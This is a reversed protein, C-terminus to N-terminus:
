ADPNQWVVPFIDDEKVPQGPTMQDLPLGPINVSEPRPDWVVDDGFWRLSIAVRPVTPHLNAGGGHYISPHFVVVDGPDMDYAAFSVSPDGRRSEWDIYEPRDAPKVMRDSNFTEPWPEPGLDQKHSGLIYELSSLEASVPYLPMWMTPFHNGRVPWSPADTHWYTRHECKPEKMFIADMFFRITDSGIVRGTIEAAPSEFAFKEFEPMWWRMYKTRVFGNAFETNAKRQAEDESRNAHMEESLNLDRELFEQPLKYIEEPGMNRMREWAGLLFEIWDDDFAGKVLAVGDREYTERHSPQIDILPTRNM